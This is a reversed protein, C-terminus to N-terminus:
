RGPIGFPVGILVSSHASMSSRCPGAAREPAAVAACLRRAAPMFTGRGPGARGPCGAPRMARPWPAALLQRARLGRALGHAASAIATEGRGRGPAALRARLDALVRHRAPRRPSPYAWNPPSPPCPPGGGHLGRHRHRLCSRSVSCRSCQRSGPSLDTCCIDFEQLAGTHLDLTEHDKYQARGAALSRCRWPAGAEGDVRSCLGQRRARPASRDTRRRIM